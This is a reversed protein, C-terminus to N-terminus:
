PGTWLAGIDKAIRRGQAEGADCSAAVAAPDMLNAASAQAREDLTVLETRTGAARLRDIEVVAQRAALGRVGPGPLGAPAIVLSVDPQIRAVFDGSTWSRVGGDTYQRGDITVTPFLGPVACSAAVAIEIPVGDDKSFARAEGSTCEVAVILLWTEPWGPWGNRTFGELWREQPVTSAGVALRGIQACRAPTM